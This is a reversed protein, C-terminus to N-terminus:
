PMGAPAAPEGDGAQHEQQPYSREGECNRGLKVTEEVLISLAGIVVAQDSLDLLVWQESPKGSNGHRGRRRSRDCRDATGFNLKKGGGIM